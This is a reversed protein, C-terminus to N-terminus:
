EQCLDGGEFRMNLMDRYNITLEENVEIDKIATLYVDNQDIIMKCNPQIAHNVYRGAPTRKGGLRAPCINFGSTIKKSTFFGLGEIKSEKVSLFEYSIPMDIQDDLNEVQLKVEKDTMDICSMLTKYDERNLNINFQELEDFNPATIFEQIEDGNNGTFPHFTIWRTDEHAYGARKKGAMGEFLNYGTFRKIEGTDTSVTIDGSIMIDFHNFKYIQGTLITGAPITIERGYMGGHIYHKVPINVQPLDEAISEYKLLADRNSEKDGVCIDKIIDVANSLNFDM